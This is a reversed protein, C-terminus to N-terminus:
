SEPFVNFVQNLRENVLIRIRRRVGRPDTLMGGYRLACSGDRDDPDRERSVQAAWGLHHRLWWRRRKDPHTLSDILYVAPSRGWPAMERCAHDWLELWSDDRQRDGPRWPPPPPTVDDADM